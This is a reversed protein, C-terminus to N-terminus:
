VRLKNIEEHFSIYEMHIFCQGEKKLCQRIDGPTLSNLLSEAAQQVKRRTVSILSAAATVSQSFASLCRRWHAATM